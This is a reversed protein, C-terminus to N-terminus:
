GRLLFVFVRMDKRKLYTESHLKVLSSFGQDDEILSVEKAM